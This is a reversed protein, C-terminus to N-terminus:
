VEPSAEQWTLEYFENEAFDYVYMYEYKNFEPDESRLRIVCMDASYYVEGNYSGRDLDRVFSKDQVLFSEEGTGMHYAYYAKNKWYILTDQGFAVIAANKVKQIVSFTDTGADYTFFLSHDIKAIDYDSRALTGSKYVQVFGTLVGEHWYGYANVISYENDLECGELHAELSEYGGSVYRGRTHYYRYANETTQETDFEVLDDDKPLSYTKNEFDLQYYKHFYESTLMYIKGDLEFLDLPLIDVKNPILSCSTLSLLLLVMVSLFCLCKKM